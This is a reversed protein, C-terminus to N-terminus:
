SPLFDAKGLFVQVRIWGCLSGPKITSRRRVSQEIRLFEPLNQPSTRAQLPL